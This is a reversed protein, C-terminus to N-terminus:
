RYRPTGAYGIATSIEDATGRVIAAWEPNHRDAPASVSLGAVLEGSDDRIPAAICRLGQEIEENDFAVGHRRVRELEKELAPLTRISTPTFGPLGTRKAYERVKEAGDEVLYLKGVATVHLPARAGVLHVVRVSSRGSSTREVYVIEDGQRVGLNVSEGIRQHLQQMLPMASDRINIRSKVVNGLELLRIGLRYTGPDAREVFGSVAMAGLIRHATSPHLGTEMALQKLSVPDHYYSLVDLLKMMRDIVQIPGKAETAVSSPSAAKTKPMTRSTHWM